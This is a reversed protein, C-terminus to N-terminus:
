HSGQVYRALATAIAAARLAEDIQDRTVGHTLADAVHGNVCSKCNNLTSIVINILEAHAKGQTPNVFLSARLGGPFGNFEDGEYLSRFKYYINFSTSTQAIGQTEHLQADSVGRARAQQAFYAAVEPSAAHSAAITAIQLRTPVDLKGDKFLAREINMYMDKLLEPSNLLIRIWRPAEGEIQLKQLARDLVKRQEDTM